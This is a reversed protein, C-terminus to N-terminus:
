TSTMSPSTADPVLQQNISPSTRWKQSQVQPRDHTQQQNAMIISWPQWHIHFVVTTIFWIRFRQWGSFLILAWWKRSTITMLRKQCDDQRIMTKTPWGVLTPWWSNGLMNHSQITATPLPKNRWIRGASNLCFGGHLLVPQHNGRRCIKALWGVMLNICNSFTFFTLWVM